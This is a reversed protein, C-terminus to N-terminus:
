GNKKLYSSLIEDERWIQGASEVKFRETFSKVYSSKEDYIRKSIEFNLESRYKEDETPRVNTLWDIADPVTQGHSIVYAIHMWVDYTGFHDLHDADQHLKIYDSYTDRGHYRDDHVAIIGCIEDLEETTCYDRLIVRAKKAGKGAHEKKGNKIDHFWAAAMLIDDHSDDNPLIIKRLKLALEAVREGHYYKNGKEKWNHSSKNGLLGYALEKIKPLDM